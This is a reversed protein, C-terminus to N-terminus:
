RHWFKGSPHNSGHINVHCNTCSRNFLMSAAQGRRRLEYPTLGAAAEEESLAWLISPHGLANHCRQCLLPRKVRLLPEHTSGHPLHCNLCNERVPPHEWVFPGRKEAHCEYCKDNVTTASILRETVTGHPNHCNTCVLKEERIPHHSPRLLEARIQRHCKTCLQPQSAEVLLKNHGSHISHCDTCALSRSDHVSGPWLGVIGRSHCNLCVANKEEATMTDDFPRMGGVGRGGGGSVHNGGPGHCTECSDRGAPTRSDEAISHASNQFSEFRDFHCQQCVEPGLYFNPEDDADQGAVPVAALALLCSAAIARSWHVMSPETM